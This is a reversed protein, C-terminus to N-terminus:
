FVAPNSFQSGFGTTGAGFTPSTPSIGTSASGGFGGFGAFNSGFGGAITGLGQAYGGIAQADARGGAIAAGAQAAGQQQYLNSINNGTQMGANGVGAAANQSMSTLGSLNSYQQQIQQALLAPSFQALAGQINGGRLGGTAAANQRISNEGQSLLSQFGVSNQIGNIAAQQAGGGNLGILSQQASLSGVTAGPRSEYRGLNQFHEDPHQSYYPDSAVDPNAALYQQANFSGTGAQVYPNLLSRIEDFQRAQENIGAQASDSQAASARDAAAAQKKGAASSAVGGVVASGVVAAAVM